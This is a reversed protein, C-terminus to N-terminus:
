HVIHSGWQRAREHCAVGAPQTVVWVGPTAAGARWAQAALLAVHGAAPAAHRMRLKSPAALLHLSMLLGVAAAMLLETCAGPSPCTQLWWSARACQACAGCRCAPRVEASQLQLTDLSGFSPRKALDSGSVVDVPRLQFSVASPDSRASDLLRKHNLVDLSGINVDLAYRRRLPAPHPRHSVWARRGLRLVRLRLTCRWECAAVGRRAGAPCRSLTSCLRRSWTTTSRWRAARGCTPWSSRRCPRVRRAPLHRCAAAPPPRAGPRPQRRAARRHRPIMRPWPGGPPAPPPLRLVPAAAARPHAQPGGRGEMPVGSM